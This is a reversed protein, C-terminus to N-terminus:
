PVHKNDDPDLVRKNASEPQSDSTHIISDSESSSTSDSISSSSSTSNSTPSSSSSSATSDCTDSSTSLHNSNLDSPHLIDDFVLPNLANFYKRKWSPASYKSPMVRPAMRDVAGGGSGGRSARGSSSSSSGGDGGGSGDESVSSATRPGSSVPLPHTIDGLCLWIIGDAAPIHWKGDVTKQM